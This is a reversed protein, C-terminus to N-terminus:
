RAFSHNGVVLAVVKSATFTKDKANEANFFYLWESDDFTATQVASMDNITYEGAKFCERDIGSFQHPKFIVEDVTSGFWGGKEVRNMVVRAVQVKGEFPEGEAEAHVIKAMLEMEDKTYRMADGGRSTSIANELQLVDIQDELDTVQGKYNEIQGSQVNILVDQEAIVRDALDARAAMSGSLLILAVITLGLGAYIKKAREYKKVLGHSPGYRSHTM